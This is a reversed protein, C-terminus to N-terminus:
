SKVADLTMSSLEEIAIDQRVAPRNGFNRWIFYSSHRPLVGLATYQRSLSPVHDGYYCVVTPRQRARLSELLRGLASDMNTLHRLYITLEAWQPDDGLSHYLKDEGASVQELQLPGHNEMTIVFIFRPARESGNEPPRDLEVLIEDVLASDSVYPGFHQAKEFDSIDSFRDFQMLPFVQKRRFFDSFYPHVALTQYGYRKLWGPLSACIKRLYFYPYFRAVGLKSPAVGTLYAFETRMTNAGWAPLSAQGWAVSESCAQDFQVFAHSNINSSISRADFYSESQIVLIDPANADPAPAGASPNAQAGTGFDQQWRQGEAFPGHELAARFNSFTKPWLGLLLYAVFVSLFGFKRQDSEANLTFQVRGIIWYGLVVSLVLAMVQWPHFAVSPEFWFVLVLGILCEIQIYYLQRNVFPMYFRPHRLVQTYLALDTFVM